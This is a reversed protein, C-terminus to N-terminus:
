ENTAGVGPILVLPEEAALEALELLSPEEVPSRLGLIREWLVLLARFIRKAGRGSGRLSSPNSLSERVERLSEPAGSADAPFVGSMGEDSVGDRSMETTAPLSSEADDRCFFTAEM